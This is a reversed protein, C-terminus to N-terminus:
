KHRNKLSVLEKINPYNWTVRMQLRESLTENVSNKNHRILKSFDTYVTSQHLTKRLVKCKVACQFANNYKRAVSFDHYHFIIRFYCTMKLKNALM